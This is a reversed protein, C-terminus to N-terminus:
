KFFGMQLGARFFPILERNPIDGLLAPSVFLNYVNRRKIRLQYGFKVDLLAENFVIFKKDGRFFRDPKGYGLVYGVGIGFYLGSLAEDLYFNLHPQLILRFQNLQKMEKPDCCEQGNGLLESNFTLSWHPSIPRELSANISGGIPGDVFLLHGGVGMKIVLDVKEGKKREEKKNFDGFNSNLFPIKQASVSLTCLVLAFFLLYQFLINISPQTKLTKFHKFINLFLYTNFRQM